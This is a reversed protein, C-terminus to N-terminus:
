WPADDEWSTVLSAVPMQVRPHEYAWQCALLEADLGSTAEVEFYITADCTPPRKLAVEVEVTYLSM